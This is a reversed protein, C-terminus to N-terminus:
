AGATDNDDPLLARQRRAFFTALSIVAAVVSIAAVAIPQHSKFFKTM